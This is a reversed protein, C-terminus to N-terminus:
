RWPVLRAELRKLGAHLMMGLGAALAVGVYL